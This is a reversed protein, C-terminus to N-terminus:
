IYFFRGTPLGVLLNEKVIVPYDTKGIGFYQLLGLLISVTFLIFTVTKNQFFYNNM